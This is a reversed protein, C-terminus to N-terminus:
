FQETKFIEFAAVILNFWFQTSFSKLRVEDLSTRADVVRSDGDLSKDNLVDTLVDIVDNTASDPIMLDSSHRVDNILKRTQLIAHVM